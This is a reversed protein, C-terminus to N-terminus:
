SLVCHLHESENFGVKSEVLTKFTLCLSFYTVDYVGKSSAYYMWGIHNTILVKKKKKIVSYFQLVSWWTRVPRVRWDTEVSCLWIQCCSSCWIFGSVPLLRCSRSFFLFLMFILHCVRNNLEHQAAYSSHCALFHAIVIATRTIVCQSQARSSM